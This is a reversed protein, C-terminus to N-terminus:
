TSLNGFGQGAETGRSGGQWQRDLAPATSGSALGEQLLSTVLGSHTGGRQSGTPLQKEREPMPFQPPVIRNERNEKWPNIGRDTGSGPPTELLLVGVM